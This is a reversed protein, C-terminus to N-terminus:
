GALTQFVVPEYKIKKAAKKTRYAQIECPITILKCGINIMPVAAAGVGSVTAGIVFFQEAFGIVTKALSYLNAKKRGQIIQLKTEWKETKKTTYKEFAANKPDQTFATQIQEWQGKKGEANAVLLLLSPDTIETQLDRIGQNCNKKEESTAPTHDRLRMGEDILAQKKDLKQTLSEIRAKIKQIREVITENNLGAKWAQIKTDCKLEDQNLRQRSQFLMISTCGLISVLSLNLIGGFPLSGILPITSLKKQVEALNVLSLSASTTLINICLLAIGAASLVLAPVSIQFNFLGDITQSSKLFDSINKVEKLINKPLAISSAYASYKLLKVSLLAVSLVIRPVELNDKLSIVVKRITQRTSAIKHEMSKKWPSSRPRDIYTKFEINIDSM